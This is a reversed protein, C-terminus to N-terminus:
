AALELLIDYPCTHKHIKSGIKDAEHFLWFGLTSHTSTSYVKSCLVKYCQTVVKIICFFLLLM